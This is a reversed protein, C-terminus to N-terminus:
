HGGCAARNWVPDAATPHPTKATESLGTPAQQRHPGAEHGCLLSVRTGAIVLSFVDQGLENTGFWHKASPPLFRARPAIGGTVHEPFPVVYQGFMGVLLLAVCIALGVVSLTSGRFRYFGRRWATLRAALASAPLHQQGPITSISM